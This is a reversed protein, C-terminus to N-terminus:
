TRLEALLKRLANMDLPKVIHHDFGADSTKQRAEPHGWGTQAIIVARNGDPQERIKRCVDYGNLRPLGLDLLILDPRFEQAALLAQEEDSATHINHGLIKLLM